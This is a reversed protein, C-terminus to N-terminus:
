DSRPARICLTGSKTPSHDEYDKKCRCLYTGVGNFCDAEEGCLSVGASCENVDEVLLSVLQLKEVGVSTGLLEELQSRLLLSVNREEPKLHLWFTLLLNASSMRKIEKLKIENVRNASLKLNEQIHNKMSELLDKQLESGGHPIWDKPKIEITVEFLVDGPHHQSQLVTDNEQSALAAVLDFLEENREGLSVMDGATVGPFPYLPPKINTNLLPKELVPTQM